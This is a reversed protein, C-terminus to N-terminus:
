KKTELSVLVPATMLQFTGTRADPWLVHFRGDAAAALGFYDGGTPWRDLTTANNKETPCSIESAIRVPSTFTIGGDASISIYPSYCSGSKNDRRDLWAVAVMGDHNVAVQPERRAGRAEAPLEIPTADSWEEGGDASYTLLISKYDSGACVNYVRDRFSDSHIDVALDTPRDFCSETVLLPVSFTRGKDRSTMAWLRRTKLLGKRGRNRFGNVPRQFDDYTIVLTGDSLIALDDSCLNLNSPIIRQLTEFHQQGPYMRAVDVQFRLRKDKNSRASNSLLYTTGDSAAGLRPGDHFQGFRQPLEHWSLGGDSSFLALLQLGPLDLHRALGIAVAGKETLSVWPDLCDNGPFSHQSWTKGGDSSVFLVCPEATENDPGQAFVASIALLRNPDTPHAALHPEIMVKDKLNRNVLVNEGVQIKILDLPDQEQAFGCTMFVLSALLVLFFVRRNQRELMM